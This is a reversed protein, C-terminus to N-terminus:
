IRRMKMEHKIVNYLDMIENNDLQPTGLIVYSPYGEHDLKSLREIKVQKSTISHGLNEIHM